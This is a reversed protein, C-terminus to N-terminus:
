REVADTESDGSDLFSYKKNLLLVFVVMVAVYLIFTIFYLYGNNGLIEANKILLHGVFLYFILFLVVFIWGVPSIKYSEDKALDSEDAPEYKAYKFMSQFFIIFALIMALIFTDGNIFIGGPIDNAALNTLFEPLYIVMAIMLPIILYFRFDYKQMMGYSQYKLLTDCYRCRFYGLLSKNYGVGGFKMQNHIFGMPQKGCNHCNM